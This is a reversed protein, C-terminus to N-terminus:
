FANDYYNGDYNGDYNGYYNGNYNAYYNGYYNAFGHKNVDKRDMCEDGEQPYHMNKVQGPGCANGYYNAPACTAKCYRDSFGANDADKGMANAKCDGWTKAAGKSCEANNSFNGYYGYNGDYNVDEDDDDDDDGDGGDYMVDDEEQGYYDALNAAYLAKNAYYEAMDANYEAESAKTQSLRASRRPM